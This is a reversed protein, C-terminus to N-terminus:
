SLMSANLSAGTGDLNETIALAYNETEDLYVFYETTGDYYKLKTNEFEDKGFFLKNATKEATLESLKYQMLYATYKLKYTGESNATFYTNNEIIYDNSTASIASVNYWTATNADDDKEIGIYGYADDKVMSISPPALYYPTGTKASDEMSVLNDITPKLEETTGEAVNYEFYSTVSHNGADVVTIAVQYKGALSAQFYGGKVTFTNRSPNKSTTMGKSAVKTKTGDEAVRYVAVQATMLAIKDDTFTLTPLEVEDPASYSKESTVARSLTPMDEDTADAISVIKNFFGTNGYDDTAYAFIEVYAAAKPKETLDVTYSTAKADVYWGAAHAEPTVGTKAYWKGEDVVKDNYRQVYYALTGKANADAIPAKDGDLYRYATVASIRNDQNIEDSVAAVNFTFKDTPLYSAQLDSSFTLTPAIEDNYATTFEIDKATLKTETNKNVNDNAFYRVTYKNATLKANQGDEAPIYAYGKEIMATRVAAMKTEYEADDKSPLELGEVLTNGFIDKNFENTVILYAGKMYAKITAPDDSDQKALIMQSRLAYNDSVIQKYLANEKAEKIQAETLGETEVDESLAPAFVLNYAHYEKQNIVYVPTGGYNRIERRLTIDEQAVMNDTGGIAYIIVNRNVAKTKLLNEASEYTKKEADFGSNKADYMFVSASITDKVNTITRTITDADVKNGYFDTATYIFKYSGEEKATFKNGETIVDSTVDKAGEDISYSGKDNAKIVQIQYHVAVTETAPSNDAKTTAVVGPLTKEVGVTASDPFTTSFTGDLEYGRKDDAKDKSQYYYNSKVTFSKSTSAVYIASGEVKQFFSYVIKFTQGEYTYKGADNKASIDSGAIYYVKETEGKDNTIEKEKIEVGTAGNTLSIKVYVDGANAKNSEIVFNEIDSALLTEEDEGKVTPLPLIVDKGDAYTVDYVSPIVNKANAEFDFSAKTAQAVVTLDYTYSVGERVVEYTVVYTGVKSAVFKGAEVKVEEGTSKYVVSVSSTIGAETMKDSAFDYKQGNHTYSATPITFYQGEKITYSQGAGDVQITSVNTRAEDGNYEAASAIANAPFFACCMMCAFGAAVGKLISKRTKTKAM